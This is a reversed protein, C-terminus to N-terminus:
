RRLGRHIKDAMGKAKQDMTILKRDSFVWMKDTLNQENLEGPTTRNGRTEKKTGLKIATESLYFTRLRVNEHM